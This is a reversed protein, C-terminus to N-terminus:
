LLIVADGQYAPIVKQAAREAFLRPVYGARLSRIYRDGSASIPILVTPAAVRDYFPVSGGNLGHHALQCVDSKLEDWFRWCTPNLGREYADGTIMVRCHPGIVQFVLSLENPDKLCDHDEPTFFFRLGIGDIDLRMDTHPTLVPVALQETLTQIAQMDAAISVGSGPLVPQGPLQYCLQEISVQRCLEPSAAISALALYHDAHPHTLIWLAVRPIQAGSLNQMTQLLHPVDEAYGGDIVLFRNQATQIVYSMGAAQWGFEGDFRSQITCLQLLKEQIMDSQKALYIAM